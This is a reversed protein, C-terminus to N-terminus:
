ASVSEKKFRALIDDARQNRELEDDSAEAVGQRSLDLAVDGAARNQDIRQRVAERAEALGGGLDVSNTKAFDRAFTTLEKERESQELELGLDRAERRADSVKTQNTEVQKVFNKYMEESRGLQDQNSKM